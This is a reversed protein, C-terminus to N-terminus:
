VGLMLRLPNTPDALLKAALAVCVIVLLPKILRAGNKIAMHAGLRAGLFQAVGMVLGIKWAIVGVSAFIVFGGINSSFNLLKTHATAKLIGYGALSVFALMYFSGAGPGFIGDYFGVAPVIMLGFLFPSLRRVRDIDDMNPKIAFYLAIAVLVIPLAASLIAAPAVTAALAGLVGGALAMLASPLQQRLHVHGKAAYALTASGSGFLGQLKNTGLAEVPAFGAILLAPVTILGGGGAISDVFGAAFGALALMIVAETALDLMAIPAKFSVALISNAKSWM